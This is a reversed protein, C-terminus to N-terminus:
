AKIKGGKVNTVNIKQEKFFLIKAITKKIKKINGPNKPVTGISKQANIKMLEKKLELMKQELNAIDLNKIENTKM